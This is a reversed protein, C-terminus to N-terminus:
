TDSEQPENIQIIRLNTLGYYFTAPLHSLWDAKQLCKGLILDCLTKCVSQIYLISTARTGDGQSLPPGVRFSWAKGDPHKFLSPHIQRLFVPLGSWHYCSTLKDWGVINSYGGKQM